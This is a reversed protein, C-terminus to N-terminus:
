LTAPVDISPLDALSTSLSIPPCADSVKPILLVFATLISLELTASSSYALNVALPNSLLDVVSTNDSMPPIVALEESVSVLLDISESLLVIVLITLASM